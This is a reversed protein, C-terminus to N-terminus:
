ALRSVAAAAAIRGKLTYDNYRRDISKLEYRYNVMMGASQRMGRASRDGLWNIREIRAGNSLHFHAVPDIARGNKMSLLYYTCLRMLPPKLAEALPEDKVWGGRSLMKVLGEGDEQGAATRLDDLLATLKEDEAEQLSRRLWNMFGPIPSLTAYHRLGPFDARLAAVVRKILFEGLSVGVLGKQCNSISYFIATDAEEPDLAPATEDLLEQVNSALGDVLAVEVFILPEDRMSPHFFAYCRRDSDLRNKLDSWSRIEHVAEYAVLKELLAAPSSWDIRRLKLFGVDFWAHLLEKLDDDLVRLAPDEKLLRRLDARMDVLFKVGQELSNFHRLLERRPPTLAARLRRRASVADGAASAYRWGEIAEEVRSDDVDFGENLLQFFRQRGTENLALYVQGIAAARSRAAVAGGSGELIARIETELHARDDDSLDPDPQWSGDSRWANRFRRLTRDILSVTANM